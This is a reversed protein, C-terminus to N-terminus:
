ASKEFTAGAIEQVLEAVALMWYKLAVTLAFGADTLRANSSVKSL